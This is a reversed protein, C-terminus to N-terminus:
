KLNKMLEHICLSNCTSLILCSIILMCIWNFSLAYIDASFLLKIEQTKTLCAHLHCVLM